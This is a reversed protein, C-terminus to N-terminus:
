GRERNFLLSKSVSGSPRLSFYQGSTTATHVSRLSTRVFLVYPWYEGTCSSNAQNTLLKNHPVWAMSPESLKTCDMGARSFLFYVDLFRKWPFLGYPLIGVLSSGILVSLNVELSGQWIIFYYLKNSMWINGRKQNTLVVHMIWWLWSSNVLNPFFKTMNFRHRWLSTLLATWQLNNFQQGLLCPQPIKPSCFFLYSM